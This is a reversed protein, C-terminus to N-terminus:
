KGALGALHTGLANLNQAAQEAQRVAALNQRAVQDINKMAQHIQAMGTAQQGASAMIQAAARAAEGLTETLARITQGAQDAVKGAAAVGKTVEETSLVATNTAKQVEGLIQRVQATAKKSQDALAKVEGAVVAFGRGHEGARSAEIAANLALLNTQEAIDNVTAIIEGIAQAQEALALINEATAEVQERVTILAAISEDVAQRGSRGIELTHEVAEGVGKAQRASQDSTQSVEDVTAVTQSVAAAQEQAGASQQTTSVLIEAAASSVQAIVDQINFLRAREEELRKRESMDRTVKAFGRLNGAADRLPTVVVNAWFRSGDKRVRWGEDESRGEAAVRLETEPRGRQVDEPTYFVSIHKGVIEEARYGKIREAASTWTVVKGAPDLLIIAYDKISELLSRFREESERLVDRSRIRETLDRTIRGFGILTGAPDRLATVVVNAWFRSGDKRLRWGEDEFRGEGSAVRLETEPKGAQVDDPPYFASCPKGVMEEARYGFIAEAAPTWTMVKGSPDLILIAYDKVTDVFLRYNDEAKRRPRRAPPRKRAPAPRKPPPTKAMPQGGVGPASDASSVFRRAGGAPRRPHQPEPRGARGPAHGGPEAAGGPRHEEDGPTGPRHRGGAPRRQGRDTGGGAGGAGLTETLARITGGAQDAVKGAAAVGKTVEETSLVATNTAKQVEGLIQRVQATAKKSQDALAKVEGAVVAFGRGHEGARSAEIAANLALLNTQEAIDTVTAIIEGIAQAQEALALINGATGEVQEKVTVLAAISEEVVQRGSRGVELTRTVAEGVGKARQTAQEATQTVENVTAVTQSVAAAQEQAGAAQQATSALIEAGASTLQAIGARIPRTVSRVLVLSAGAVFLAALLTAAAITYRTARASTGAAANWQDAEAARQKLLANEEGRMAKIIERAEVMLAKGEGSRVVELAADLGKDKQRLEITRQLEKLKDRVKPELDNLRQQQVANDATLEHLRTLTAGLTKRAEEYPQLYSPEGTLLFGRQGTEADTLLSLVQELAALVEYTHAVSRNGDIVFAGSEELKEASRYALAGVVVVAALSLGFGGVIKKGITM